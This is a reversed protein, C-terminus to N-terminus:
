FDIQARTGIFDVGYDYDAVDPNSSSLGSVEDAM